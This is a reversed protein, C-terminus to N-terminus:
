FRAKFIAGTEFWLQFEIPIKQQKYVIELIAKTVMRAPPTHDDSTYLRTPEFSLVLHTATALDSLIKSNIIHFFEIPQDASIRQDDVGYISLLRALDKEQIFSALMGQQQGSIKTVYGVTGRSSEIKLEDTIQSVVRIKGVDFSSSVIQPSVQQRIVTINSMVVSTDYGVMKRVTDEIKNSALSFLVAVNKDSGANLANNIGATLSIETFPKVIYGIAGRELCRELVEHQESATLMIIKADKDHVLIRKLTEYGDMIPMIMDLTVIDPRFKEYLDLAQAGNDATEVEDNNATLIDRILDQVSKSDDVVLVKM